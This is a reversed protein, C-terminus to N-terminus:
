ISSLIKKRKCYFRLSEEAQKGEKLVQYLGENRFRDRVFSTPSEAPNKLTTQYIQNSQFPSPSDRVPMLQVLPTSSMPPHATSYSSPDVFPHISSDMQFCISEWRRRCKWSYIRNSMALHLYM